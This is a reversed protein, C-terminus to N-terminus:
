SNKLLQMQFYAGRLIVMSIISIAKLADPITQLTNIMIDRELLSLKISDSIDGTTIAIPPM